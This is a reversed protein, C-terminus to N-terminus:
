VVNNKKRKLGLRFTEDFMQEVTWHESIHRQQTTLVKEIIELRAYIQKPTMQTKQKQNKIKPALKSEPKLPTYLKTLYLPGKRVVPIEGASVTSEM